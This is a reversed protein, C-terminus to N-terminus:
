AGGRFSRRSLRNRAQLLADHRTLLPDRDGRRLLSLNRERLSQPGGGPAPPNSRVRPHARTLTDSFRAAQAPFLM